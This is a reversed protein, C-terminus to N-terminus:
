GALAVPQAPTTAREPVLLRGVRDQRQMREALVGIYGADAAINVGGEGQILLHEGASGSFIKEAAAHQIEGSLALLKQAAVVWQGTGEFATGHVEVLAVTRGLRGTM